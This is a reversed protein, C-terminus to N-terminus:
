GRETQRVPGVDSIVLTSSTDDRGGEERRGARKERLESQVRMGALRARRVSSYERQFNMNKSSQSLASENEPKMVRHIVTKPM